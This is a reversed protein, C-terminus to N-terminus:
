QRRRDALNADSDNTQEESETIGGVYQAYRNGEVALAQAELAPTLLRNERHRGTQSRAKRRARLVKQLAARRPPVESAAGTASSRRRHDKGNERQDCPRHAGSTRPTSRDCATARNSTNNRNGNRRGQRLRRPSRRAKSPKRRCNM